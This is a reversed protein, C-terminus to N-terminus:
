VLRNSISQFTHVNSLYDLFIGFFLLSISLYIVWGASSPSVYSSYPTNTTDVACKLTNVIASSDRTSANFDTM